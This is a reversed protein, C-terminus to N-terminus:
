YSSQAGLPVVLWNLVSRFLILCFCLTVFATEEGFFLRNQGEKMLEEGTSHGEKGWRDKTEKRWADGVDRATAEWLNCVGGLGKWRWTSDTILSLPETGSLQSCLAATWCCISVVVCWRVRRYLCRPFTPTLANRLPPRQILDDKWPWVGPRSLSWTGSHPELHQDIGPVNLINM